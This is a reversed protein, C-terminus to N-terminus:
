YEKSLKLIGKKLSYINKYTLYDKKAIKKVKDLDFDDFRKKRNDIKIISKSNIVKKILKALNIIKIKKKNGVTLTKNEFKKDLSKFSCVALDEVHIFDRTQKGNSHVIMKKNKLAKSLFLSVVDVGRNNTGYVTAFRLITYKIKFLLSYNKIINEAALKSTTYLNGSTGHAYISSAFIFRKVKNFRSAELLNATIIVNDRITQIPIKKVKNIDSVGALHYIIDINKTIKKIKKINLLDSKIFKVNKNKPKIKDVVIVKFNKQILLNVISSGLFGSGGTVLVKRM